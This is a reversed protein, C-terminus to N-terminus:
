SLGAYRKELFDFCRKEVDLYSDFAVLFAKLSSDLRGGLETQLGIHVHALERHLV